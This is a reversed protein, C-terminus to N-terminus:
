KLWGGRGDIPRKCTSGWSTPWLHADNEVHAGANDEGYAGPNDAVGEVFILWRSCRELVHDGITAAATDWDNAPDGSGWTAQSPENQLDM